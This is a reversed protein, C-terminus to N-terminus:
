TFDFHKRVRTRVDWTCSMGAPFSVLDGKGVIVPEGGIPTVVAEGEVFYCTEPSDYTWPFMSIEKQWVPWDLVGCESLLSADVDHIVKINSM